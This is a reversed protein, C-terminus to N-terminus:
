EIVTSHLQAEGSTRKRLISSGRPNKTALYNISYNPVAQALRTQFTGPRDVM